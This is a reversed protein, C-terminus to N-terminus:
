LIFFVSANASMKNTHRQAAQAPDEIGALRDNM